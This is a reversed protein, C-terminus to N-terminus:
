KSHVRKEGGKLMYNCMVIVLLGDGDGGSVISGLGVM